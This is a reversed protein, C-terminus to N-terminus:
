LQLMVKSTFSHLLQNAKCQHKLAMQLDGFNTIAWHSKLTWLSQFQLFAFLFIHTQGRLGVTGIIWMFFIGAINICCWCLKISWDLMHCILLKLHYIKKLLSPSFILLLLRTLILFFQVCWSFGSLPVCYEEQFANFIDYKDTENYINPSM